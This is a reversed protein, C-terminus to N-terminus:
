WPVRFVVVYLPGRGLSNSNCIARKRKGPLSQWRPLMPNAVLDFSAADFASVAEVDLEGASALVEKAEAGGLELQM